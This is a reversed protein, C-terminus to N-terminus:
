LEYLEVLQAVNRKLDFKDDVIHRGAQGMKSRLDEDRALKSIAEAAASRDGRAVLFGSVGDEVLESIGGVKTAVIPRGYAMAEAIM